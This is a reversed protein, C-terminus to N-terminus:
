LRVAKIGKKRLYYIIYYNDDFFWDIGIAKCVKEKFEQPSLKSTPKRAIIEQFYIDYGYDFLVQEVLAQNKRGTILYFKFDKSAKKLAELRKLNPFIPLHVIVKYFPRYIFKPTQTSNFVSCLFGIMPPWKTLFGDFDFGIREKKM